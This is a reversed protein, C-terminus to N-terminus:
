GYCANERRSGSAIHKKKPDGDWENSFCIIDNGEIM